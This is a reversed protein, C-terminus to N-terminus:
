KVVKVTLVMNAHGAGCMVACHAVFTGTRDPTVVIVTPKPGINVVNKIGLEPITIGHLGQTSVFRLTTRHHLKLTITSPAFVFNRTTVNIQSAGATAPACVLAGLALAFAFSLLKM